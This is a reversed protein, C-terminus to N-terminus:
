PQTLSEPLYPYVFFYVVATIIACWLMVKARRPYQTRWVFYFIVSFPSLVCALLGWWFNNGEGPKSAQPANDFYTTIPEDQRRHFPETANDFGQAQTQQQSQIRIGCGACFQAGDDLRRGCQSCYM